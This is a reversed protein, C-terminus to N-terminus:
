SVDALSPVSTADTIAPTVAQATNRNPDDVGRARRAGSYLLPGILPEPM